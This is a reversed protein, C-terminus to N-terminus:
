EHRISVEAKVGQPINTATVTKVMDINSTIDIIRKYIRMTYREFTATGQGSPSKRTSIQLRRTPLRVPGRFEVGRDRATRVIDTATSEIKKSDTGTLTIRIRHMAGAAGADFGEKKTPAVAAM